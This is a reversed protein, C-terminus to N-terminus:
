AIDNESVGEAKLSARLSVALQHAYRALAILMPRDLAIVQLDDALSSLTDITHDSPRTAMLLPLIRSM